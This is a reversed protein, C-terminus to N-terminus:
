GHESSVTILIEQLAGQPYGREDQDYFRDFSVSMGRAELDSKLRSLTSTDPYEWWTALILIDCTQERFDYTWRTTYKRQDTIMFANSRDPIDKYYEVLVHGHKKMVNTIEIMALKKARHLRQSIEKSDSSM